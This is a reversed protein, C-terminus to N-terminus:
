KHSIEIGYKKIHYEKMCIIESVPNELPNVKFIKANQLTYINYNHDQLLKVFDNKSFTFGESINTNFECFILPPIQSKLFDSAGLLALYDAGETDVKLLDINSINEAACFENLTTVDIEKINIVERMPHNGISNYADDDCLYFKLKGTKNSIGKKLVKINKFGNLNINDILRIYAWDSPEFSYVRGGKKIHAAALLSYIGINAGIDIFNGAFPLLSKLFKLTELEFEGWYFHKDVDKEVNLKIKYGFQSYKIFEKKFFNERLIKKTKRQLRYYINM